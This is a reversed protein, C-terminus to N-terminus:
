GENLEKLLKELYEKEEQFLKKGLSIPRNIRKDEVKGAM